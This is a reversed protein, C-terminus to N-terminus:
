KKAKRSFLNSNQLNQFYEMLSQSTAFKVLLSLYFKVAIKLFRGPLKDISAAKSIEINEMIKFFNEESTSKIHFVEPLAFNSYYLFVSELSYTNSPDLLLSRSYIRSFKLLSRQFSKVNNKHSTKRLQM